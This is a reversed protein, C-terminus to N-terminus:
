YTDNILKEIKRGYKKKYADMIKFHEAMPVNKWDQLMVSTLKPFNLICELSKKGLNSYNLRLFTLNKSKKSFACFDDDTFNLDGDLGFSTLSELESLCDILNKNIASYYFFLKLEPTKKQKLLECFSNNQFKVKGLMFNNINSRACSRVADDSFYPFEIGEISLNKLTPLKCILPLDDIEYKTKTSFEITHIHQGPKLTNQNIKYGKNELITATQKEDLPLRLNDSCDICLCIWSFLINKAIIGLIFNSNSSMTM